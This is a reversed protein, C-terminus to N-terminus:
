IRLVTQLMDDLTQIVRANASYATEIRLLDQLERDTDVGNAFEALRLEDRGARAATGELEYIARGGSVESLVHTAIGHVSLPSSFGGQAPIRTEALRDAYAGLLRADGVDGIGAAGIGDRLRWVDGGEDPDVADSIRLRSALDETAALNLPNGADTFLGADGAVLTDDLLPDEFREILDRAFGDLADQVPPALQDRVAFAGALTGGAALSRDGLVPVTRGDVMLEGLDGDEVRFDAPVIATADFSITAPRDDLLQLGTTTFIAVRSGPRDVVRLPVIEALADIETQRRDMLANPDRGTKEYLFIQDNLADIRAIGGNMRQVQDAIDADAASRIDVIKDAASGLRETLRHAANVVALLRTESDPRSEAEALAAEFAAVRGVLSTPDDPEGLAAQLSEYMGLRTDADALRADALRRDAIIGEDVIRATSRVSVGAGSTGTQRTTLVLERRGYGDTSANAVNSSVTEAARSTATLGSIAAALAGSISM